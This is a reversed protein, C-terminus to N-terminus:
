EGAPQTSAPARIKQLLEAERVDHSPVGAFMASAPALVRRKTTTQM